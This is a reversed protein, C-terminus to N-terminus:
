WAVVSRRASTQQEGSMARLEGAAYGEVFELILDALHLPEINTRLEAALAQASNKRFAYNCVGAFYAVFSQAKVRNLRHHAIGDSEIPLKAKSFNRRIPLIRNRACKVHLQFKLSKVASYASIASGFSCLDSHENRM